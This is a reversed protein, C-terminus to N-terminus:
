TNPLIFNEQFNIIINHIILVTYCRDLALNFQQLISNAVNESLFTESGYDDILM